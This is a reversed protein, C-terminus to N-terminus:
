KVGAEGRGNAIDEYVLSCICVNKMRLIINCRFQVCATSWCHLACESSVGLVCKPGSV